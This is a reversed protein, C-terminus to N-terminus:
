TSDTFQQRKLGSAPLFPPGHGRSMPRLGALSRDGTRSVAM